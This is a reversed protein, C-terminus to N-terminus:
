AYREETVNALTHALGSLASRLRSRDYRASDGVGDSLWQAAVRDHPLSGRIPLGLYGATDDAYTVGRGTKGPKHLVVGGRHQAGIRGLSDRIVTATHKATGIERLTPQLMVLVHSAAEALAEPIGVPRIRGLDVIVDIDAQDMEVFARGLNPWAQDLAPLSTPNAVGPLLMRRASERDGPIAVAQTWLATRVDTTALRMAELVHLIGNTTPYKGALHGMLFVQGADANVLLCHRPWALTLGMATTSVGPAAAGSTLVTLM